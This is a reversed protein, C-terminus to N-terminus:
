NLVMTDKLQYLLASIRCTHSLVAFLNLPNQWISHQPVCTVQFLQHGTKSCWNARKKGAECTAPCTQRCMCWHAKESLCCFVKTSVFHCDCDNGDTFHGFLLNDALLVHEVHGQFRVVKLSNHSLFQFLGIKAYSHYLFVASRLAMLTVPDTPIGM